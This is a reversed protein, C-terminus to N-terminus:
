QVLARAPNARAAKIAEQSITVAAIILTLLSVLLLTTIFIMMGFNIKYAFNQMWNNMLFFSPLALMTSIILLVYTERFLLLVIQSINSGYTKRIAIEKTRLITAFSILGFLGLCSIFISLISFIVLIRSTQKESSFIQDFRDELWFSELPLESVFTKWSSEIFQLTESVSEGTTKVCIYGSNRGNLSYIIVPGIPQHMSEFHFDKVVGIIPFFVFEGDPGDPFYFRKGIPNELNKM